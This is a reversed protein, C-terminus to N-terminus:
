AANTLIEGNAPGACRVGFENFRTLVGRNVIRNDTKRVSEITEEPMPTGHSDMIDVGAVCETWEISGAGPTKELAADLCRRAAAALEPGTGDGTILTATHVTM